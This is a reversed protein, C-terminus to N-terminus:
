IINNYRLMEILDNSEEEICKDTDILKQILNQQKIDFYKEDLGSLKINNDRQWESFHNRTKVPKFIEIPNLIKINPILNEEIIRQYIKLGADDWDCSYYIPKDVTMYKLPNLNHGGVHWLEIQNKRAIYARKLFAINECLVIMKAPTKDTVVTIYDRGAGKDPFNAIGLIKLIAKTLGKSNDLHKNDKDKFYKSAFVRQDPVDILIKEKDQKILMLVCIDDEEYNSNDNLIANETLFNYYYHYLELHDKEYLDEFSQYKYLINNIGKAKIYNNDRLWNIYGNNHIQAKSEGQMYIDNLAKLHRWTLNRKLATNTM